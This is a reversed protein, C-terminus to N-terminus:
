DSAALSWTSGSTQTITFWILFVAAAAPLLKTLGPFLVMLILSLAAGTVTLARWWNSPIWIGWLALVAMALVGGAAMALMLGVLPAGSSVTVQGFPGSDGESWPWVWRLLGGFERQAGSDLPVLFSVAFHTQLLILAAFLWKPM